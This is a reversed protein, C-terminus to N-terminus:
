EEFPANMLLDVTSIPKYGPVFREGFDRLFNDSSTEPKAAVLRIASLPPIRAGNYGERGRNGRRRCSFGSDCRTHIV